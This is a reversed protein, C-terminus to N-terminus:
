DFWKALWEFKNAWKDCAENGGVFFIFVLPICFIVILLLFGIIRLLTKKIVKM